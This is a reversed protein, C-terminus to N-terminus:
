GSLVRRMEELFAMGHRLDPELHCGEAWENWANVFVLREDGPYGSVQAIAGELWRGFEAPSTNQIITASKRRASNDWSPFVCPFIRSQRAFTQALANDVYRSYDVVTQLDRSGLVDSDRLLDYLRRPLLRRATAILRGISNVDAPFLQRNPQFAVVGDFGEGILAEPSTSSFGTWAACLYLEEGLHRRVHDKWIEVLAARDAIDDPRYILLLPREGVRIYRRDAIAGTLWGIHERHDELSYQQSILVDKDRGSWTRSWTENAWCLCFPFEPKGSALLRDIPTGLLRRGHFWYHYYCFGHLGHRAAVEAQAERVEDLRLDYFGFEGPLHPQYHAKFRPAAKVVNLWDTFGKGWWEDNEPIPHYQPLYFAIAKAAPLGDLAHLRIGRDAVNEAAAIM